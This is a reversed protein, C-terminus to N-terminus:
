IKSDRGDSDIIDERVHTDILEEFVEESLTNRYLQIFADVLLNKKIKEDLRFESREKGPPLHFVDLDLSRFSFGKQDARVGLDTDECGYHIYNKRFWGLNEFDQKNLSLFFTSVYRWKAPIQNWNKSSRQFEEWYGNKSDICNKSFEEYAIDQTPLDSSLQWRKAQLLTQRASADIVTCITSSPVVIDSDVFILQEGRAHYVGINRTIGARFSRDGRTRQIDRSVQIWLFQVGSLAPFAMSWPDDFSGDDVIILEFSQNTQQGWFLLARRLAKADNYVPIIVSVKPVSSRQEKAIIYDPERHVSQLSRPEFFDWGNLGVRSAGSKSFLDNKIKKLRPYDLIEFDTAFLVQLNMRELENMPGHEDQDMGLVFEAKPFFLYLWKFLDFHRSNASAWLFFILHDGKLFTRVAAAVVSLFGAGIQVVQHRKFDSYRRSVGAVHCPLIVSTYGRASLDEFSRLKSSRLFGTFACGPCQLKCGQDSSVVYKRGM